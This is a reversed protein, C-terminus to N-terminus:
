VKEYFVVSKESSYPIPSKTWEKKPFESVKLYNKFLMMM